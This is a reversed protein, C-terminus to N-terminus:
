ATVLGTPTILQGTIPHFRKGRTYNDQLTQAPRVSMQDALKALQAPTAGADAAAKFANKFAVNELRVERLGKWFTIRCVWDQSPKINDPIFRFKMAM